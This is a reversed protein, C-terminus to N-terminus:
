NEVLMCDTVCSYVYLLAFANLCVGNNRYQIRIIALMILVGIECLCAYICVYSYLYIIFAVNVLM